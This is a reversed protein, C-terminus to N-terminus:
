SSITAGRTPSSSFRKPPTAAVPKPASPSATNQPSRRLEAEEEYEGPLDSHRPLLERVWLATLEADSEKAMLAARELAIQAGKSGDYGVVIKKYM